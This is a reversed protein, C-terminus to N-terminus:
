KQKPFYPEEIYQEANKICAYKKDTHKSKVIEYEQQTKKKRKKTKNGKISQEKKLEFRM